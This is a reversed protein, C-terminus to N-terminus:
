ISETVNLVYTLDVLLKIVFLVESIQQPNRPDAPDNALFCSVSFAKLTEEPKAIANSGFPVFSMSPTPVLSKGKLVTSQPTTVFEFRPYGM